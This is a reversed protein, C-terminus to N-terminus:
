DKGNKGGLKYIIALAIVIVVVVAGIAHWVTINSDNITKQINDLATIRSEITTTTTTEEPLPVCKCDICEWRGAGCASASTDCEEEVEQYLNGCVPQITTTVPPQTTTPSETTTTPETTTTTEITWGTTNQNTQGSENTANEIASIVVVPENTANNQTEYLTPMPPEITTPVIITENVNMTSSSTEQASASAILLAIGLYIWTKNM